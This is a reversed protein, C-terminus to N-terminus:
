IKVPFKERLWQGRWSFFFPVAIFGVAIFALLSNGWGLGLNAYLSPGALPLCGGIINRLLTIAGLVSAAAQPGFVDIMYTQCSATIIVVGLGNIATGIIPVIWHVRFYATWGYILLGAPVLPCTYMILIMRREARYKGENAPDRVLRDSLRAFALTGIGGGVGIGLYALGSVGVSWHYTDEYVIPFTSYFLMVVAFVFAVYLSTLLVIPSKILLMIPRRLTHALLQWVPINKDGAARLNPNGIEKSLRRAKAKLIVPSSTERMFFFALTSVVGAQTAVDYRTLKGPYNM